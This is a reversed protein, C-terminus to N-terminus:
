WRARAREYLGRASEPHLLVPYAIVAVFSFPGVNMTLWIGLHLALGALLLWPNIRRFWVLFPFGAEFLVTFWSMPRILLSQGSLWAGLPQLGFHQHVLHFALVEGNWWGETAHIAKLWGTSGYLACYIILLYWRSFPSRAKHVLDREGIPGMLLGAAIWTLLRDYAKINLAENALLIWSFVLWVIIGPKALRGGYGVMGLGVLALAWVAWASTTSMVWVDAMYFPPYSFVMDQAGYVDGIGWARPVQTLLGVIVYLWRTLAWGGAWQPAYLRELLRSM